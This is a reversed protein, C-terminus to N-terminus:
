CWWQKMARMTLFISKKFKKMNWVWFMHKQAQPGKPMDLLKGIQKGNQLNEIFESQDM